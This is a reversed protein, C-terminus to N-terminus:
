AGNFSIGASNADISEADIARDELRRSMTGERYFPIVM